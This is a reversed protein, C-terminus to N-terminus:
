KNNKETMLLNSSHQEHVDAHIAANTFNVGRWSYTSDYLHVICM